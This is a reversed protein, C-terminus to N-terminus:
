KIAEAVQFMENIQMETFFINISDYDRYYIYSHKQLIKIDTDIRRLKM